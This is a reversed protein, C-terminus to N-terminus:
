AEGEEESLARAKEVFEEYLSLLEEHHARIYDLAEAEADGQAIRKGQAELKRATESLRKGGLSLSSSKLAHVYTTYDNWNGDSFTKEIQQRKKPYTDAFMGALERYFGQDGGCYQLGLVRDLVPLEESEVATETSENQTNQVNQARGETSANKTEQPVPADQKTAPEAEPVPQIKEPPLFRMLTWELTAGDLPKALYDDFGEGLFQERMGSVADATLILFPVGEANPLKKAAPLTEVGDMGPMRHDLLVADYRDKALRDLVAQGDTVADIRVKTKKLLGEVVMLNMENDDAVLIRAEPARFSARYAPEDSAESLRAAFDGIPEDGDIKQPLVATFVSGVGYTSEFVVDGGMLNALRKTIALGLGTGEISRNRVSDLREFNKFLKDKDEDRIGIGTDEIVFRLVGIGADENREGSVRFRVSGKETYKAANTLLNVVIQQVRTMDGFLADPLTGEVEFGFSLGKGEARPKAMNVANRLLDSLRYDSEVIEIKGSEIKSLDLVDNILDLLTKGASRINRAYRAVAPDKGERLIMENMGLVANIPTRIEHSMNALFESKAQNANDAFEKELRLMESEEAKKRVSALYLWVSVFILLLVGISRLLREHVRAIDGAVASWPIYGAVTCNARPLDSAFVFYREGGREVFAAAARQTGLQERLRAFAERIVLDGFFAQDSAGYNKYPLILNGLKDRLLLRVAPHYNTLTFRGAMVNEGYLRYLVARVNGGSLIPVAFLLGRGACFDVVAQGRYARPLNLFDWRSLSGGVLPRGDVAIIGVSIGHRAGQISGLEEAARRSEAEEKTEASLSVLLRRATEGTPDDSIASAALMLEGLEQGFREEAMVSLDAAQRAVTRELTGNLLVNTRHAAWFTFFVLAVLVALFKRLADLSRGAKQTTESM